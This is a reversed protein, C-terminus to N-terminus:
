DVYNPVKSIWNKLWKPRKQHNAVVGLLNTWIHHFKTYRQQFMQLVSLINISKLILPTDLFGMTPRKGQTRWNVLGRNIINNHKLHLWTPSLGNPHVEHWKVNVDLDWNATCRRVWWVTPALWTHLTHPRDKTRSEYRIRCWFLTFMQNSLCNM